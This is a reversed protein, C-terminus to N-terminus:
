AGVALILAAYVVAFIILAWWSSRMRPPDMTTRVPKVGTIMASALNERRFFWHALIAATHLVVVALLFNFLLHHIGTILDSTDKGVLAFLPGEFLVDDNSFLGTVAQLTVLLLLLLVSWGGAPNHGVTEPAPGRSFFGRLYGFVVRPSKLFSTFRATESGVFGWVVRAIVLALVTTGLWRHVTMWDGELESTLWLGALLLVLLWHFVRVGLDWIRIPREETTM